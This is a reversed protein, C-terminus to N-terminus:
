KKILRYLIQQHTNYKKPYNSKLFLIVQRLEQEQLQFQKQLESFMVNSIPKMTQHIKYAVKEIKTEVFRLRTPTQGGGKIYIVNENTNAVRKMDNLIILRSRGLVQQIQTSDVVNKTKLMEMITKDAAAASAVSTKLTLMNLMKETNRLIQRLIKEM